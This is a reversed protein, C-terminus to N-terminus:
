CKENKIQITNKLIKIDDMYNSYQIFAKSGNLYKLSRSEKKNILSQYKAENPDKAYSYIKNIDTEHNILNLLTNTKRSGFGRVILIRYPHNPIEPRNPKHEKRDEKTIYDFNFM